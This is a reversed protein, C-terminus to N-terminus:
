KLTPETEATPAVLRYFLNALFPFKSIADLGLLRFHFSIQGFRSSANKITVRRILFPDTNAFNSGMISSCAASYGTKQLLDVIAPTTEGHPNAFINVPPHLNNELMILSLMLERSFENLNIENLTYHNVTHSGIEMGKAQMAQLDQWSMYDPEGVRGTVIFFTAKFGYKELIPVATAWNDKYGDDFTIVIPKWPLSQKSALGAGMEQVSIPSYGFFKLLAVHYEFSSASVYYWEPSDGIHHYTLVPVGSYPIILWLVTLVTLTVLITFTIKRFRTM